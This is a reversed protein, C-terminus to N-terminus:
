APFAEEVMKEALTRARIATTAGNEVVGGIAATEPRNRHARLVGQCWEHTVTCLYETVAVVAGNSIRM